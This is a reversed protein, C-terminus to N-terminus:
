TSTCGGPGRVLGVGGPQRPRTARRRALYLRRQAGRRLLQPSLPTQPPTPSLTGANRSLPRRHSVFPAADVVSHPRRRSSPATTRPPLAAPTRRAGKPPPGCATTSSRRISHRRRKVRIFRRASRRRRRWQASSPGCAARLRLRPARRKTRIFRRRRQKPIFRRRRRKQMFSRRRKMRISRRRRQKRILTCKPRPRRAILLPPAHVLQKHM